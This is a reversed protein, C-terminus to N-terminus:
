KKEAGDGMRITEVVMGTGGAVGNLKGAKKLEDYKEQQALDLERKINEEKRKEVEETKKVTDAWHEKDSMGKMWMESIERQADDYHQKIRDKQLPSLRLEKEMVELPDDMAFLKFPSKDDKEKLKKDILAEVDAKSMSGGDGGPNRGPARAAVGGADGPPDSAVASDTAGTGASAAGSESPQGSAGAGPASAVDKRGGDHPAPPAAPREESLKAIQEQMGALRVCFVVQVAILAVIAAWLLAGTLKSM